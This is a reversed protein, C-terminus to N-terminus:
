PKSAGPSSPLTTKVGAYASAPTLQYGKANLEATWLRLQEITVPYAFGLGLARGKQVALAELQLLERDIADASPEADLIRDATHVQTKSATAAEPLISRTAAGDHVFVLGRAAIASLVPMVARRDTVFKAGQYNIVGVYGTTRGLLVNLRRTNEQATATTLLTQPGPDVNPYDYPEMPLEILTEHGAERAKNIWVQLDDAYPVFSLTVEPPLDNIAALTHSAKLGLGGVILSVRPQGNPIFPRAYAQAPTVGDSGVKPLDGFTTREFLGAVPAKPLAKPIVISALTQDTGTIGGAGADAAGFGAELAPDIGAEGFYVATSPDTPEDGSATKGPKPKEGAPFLAIEITPSANRPDGLILASGVIILTLGAFAGLGMVLHNLGTRVASYELAKPAAM